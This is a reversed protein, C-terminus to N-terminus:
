NLSESPLKVSCDIVSLSPNGVEVSLIIVLFLKHLLLNFINNPLM